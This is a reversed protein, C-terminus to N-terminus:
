WHLMAWKQGTDMASDFGNAKAVRAEVVFVRKRDNPAPPLEVILTSTTELFTDSEIDVAVVRVAGANYLDQALRLSDAANLNESSDGITRTKGDKTQLWALAEAKHPTTAIMKQLAADNQANNVTPASSVCGTETTLLAAAFLVVFRNLLASRSQVPM